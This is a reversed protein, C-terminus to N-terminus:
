ADTWLTLRAPGIRDGYVKRFNELAEEKGGPHVCGGQCECSAWNCEGVGCNFGKHYKGDGCVPVGCKPKEGPLWHVNILAGPIAGCQLSENPDFLIDTKPCCNKYLIEVAEDILSEVGGLCFMTFVLVSLIYLKM